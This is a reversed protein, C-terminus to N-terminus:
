QKNTLMHILEAAKEEGVISVIQQIDKDTANALQNKIVRANSAILRAKAQSAGNAIAVNYIVNKLIEEDISAIKQLQERTIQM